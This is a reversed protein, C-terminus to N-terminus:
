PLKDIIHKLAVAQNHTEDKATYVLCITRHKKLLVLIDLYAESGILETQYKSIFSNWKRPDHDFWKRLTTSPAVRKLWVDFMDTDKRLGRPWLRDVLIRYGDSKDKSEYLRKTKIM